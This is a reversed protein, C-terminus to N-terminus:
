ASFSQSRYLSCTINSERKFFGHKTNSLTKKNHWWTQNSALPANKGTHCRWFAHNDDPKTQHWLPMKGPTVDVPTTKFRNYFNRPFGQVDTFLLHGFGHIFFLTNWAVSDQNDSGSWVLLVDIVSITTLPVNILRTHAVQTLTLPTIRAWLLGQKPFREKGMCCRWWRWWLRVENDNTGMFLWIVVVVVVFTILRRLLFLFLVLLFLLFLFTASTVIFLSRRAFDQCCETTSMRRMHRTKVFM